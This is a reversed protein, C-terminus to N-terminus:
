SSARLNETSQPEVVVRGGLEDALYDPLQTSRHATLVVSEGLDLLARATHSGISGLGGTILIMRAGAGSGRSGQPHHDRLGAAEGLNARHHHHGDPRVLCSGQEWGDFHEVPIVKRSAEIYTDPVGDVVEVRAEGRVLLARPPWQDQTDITLAVRPNKRLARVKASNPATNGVVHGGTWLFAIRIVRPESDVGVYALRAPISSGLLEQSIPKALVEAVEDHKM